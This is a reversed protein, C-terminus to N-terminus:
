APKAKKDATDSVDMATIDIKMTGNAQDRILESRLQRSLGMIVRDIGDAMLTDFEVNEKLANSTLVLTCKEDNDCDELSIKLEDCTRSIQLLEMIETLLFAVPMAVDQSVNMNEINVQANRAFESGADSTRFSNIIENILARLDIGNTVEGDAHHNRHVVSLAEVRRQISAYAHAATPTEATRAHLSILSAVIQLNNKVRHHVERTLAVQQKLSNDISKKDEAVGHTLQQFVNDLDDIEAANLAGRRIPALTEGTKYRTMKRRLISMPRMLMHNVVWWGIIAAAIMMVFPIALALFEPSSAKPRAVRLGMDLGMVDTDASIISDLNRKLRNPLTTLELSEESTDDSLLLESMPIEEIPDAIKLLMEAPYYMVTRVYANRGQQQLLLGDNDPLLKITGDFKQMMLKRFGPTLSGLECVPGERNMGAYLLAGSPGRMSSFRRQAAACIIDEDEGLAIRDTHAALIQLENQLTRKLRVASDEITDSILETRQNVANESVTQAAFTALVALPFLAAVLIVFLRVSTSYWLKELPGHDKFLHHKEQFIIDSPDSM